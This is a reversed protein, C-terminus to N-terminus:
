PKASNAAEAEALMSDFDFGNRVILRFNWSPRKGTIRYEIIKGGEKASQIVMKGSPCRCALWLLTHGVTEAEPKGPLHGGSRMTDIVYRRASDRTLKNKSAMDDAKALIGTIDEPKYEAFFSASGFSAILTTMKM